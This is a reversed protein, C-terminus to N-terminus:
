FLSETKEIRMDGEKTIDTNFTEIILGESKYYELRSRSWNVMFCRKTEKKGTQANQRVVTTDEVIDYFYSMEKGDSLRLLRGSSQNLLIDSKISEGTVVNVLNKISQGTSFVSYNAVLISNGSVDNRIYEKITERESTSIDGDIYFIKKGLDRQFSIDQLREYIKKGYGGKKDNFYVLTNGQLQSIFQCKWELLRKSNRIFQQEYRLSKEGDEIFDKESALALLEQRGAFRVNIMRITINTAAGREILDTKKITKVVPGFNEEITFEDADGKGKPFSGSCGLLNQVAGCRGIITKITSAISRHAEDCIITDFREFYEEPLNILSAFNGIAHKYKELNAKDRSGGHVMATQLDYKGSSYDNWEDYSQIVLNPDPEIILVHESLRLYRLLMIYLYMILTKGGSTAIEVCSYRSKVAKFVTDIQYDHPTIKPHHSMLKKCFKEVFEYTIEERIFKDFGVFELQFHYKDCMEILKMYMTSRIRRNKYIYSVVGNWGKFKQKNKKMFQYNKVKRTFFDNAQLLEEETSFHLDIWMMDDSLVAKM